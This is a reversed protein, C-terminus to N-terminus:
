IVFNVLKNPIFIEKKIKGSKLWKSAKIDEKALKLIKTKDSSQLSDVVLQSRLKGNVQVVVIVEDSKLYKEDYIPWPSIHISNKQGLVEHWIEETMYPAFPALLQCLVTLLRRDVAKEATSQLSYDILMNVFEMLSSIATNFKYNEIDEGVKKITQHM